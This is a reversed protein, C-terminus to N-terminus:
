SKASDSERIILFWSVTMALMFLVWGFNEHVFLMTENGFHYGVMVITMIRLVNLFFIISIGITTYVCMKKYDREKVAIFYAVVASLFVTMSVVGSCSDGIEVTFGDFNVHVGEAFTPKIFNLLAASITLSVKTIPGLFPNITDSGSIMYPLKFFFLYFLLFISIIYSSFTVMKTDLRLYNSIRTNLLIIIIGISLVTYDIHALADSTYVNYSLDLLILLFGLCVFKFNGQGTFDSEIDTKSKYALYLILLPVCILSFALLKYIPKSTHMSPLTLIRIGVLLLAICLAYFIKSWNKM